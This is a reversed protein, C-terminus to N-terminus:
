TVKKGGSYPQSYGKNLMVMNIDVGQHYIIGLVRGYKDFKGCRLIVIKDLILVALDQKAKQAMVNKGTLEPTDYGVMRIRLQVIEGHYIINVTCTDGDYVKVVKAQYVHENFDFRRASKLTSAKLDLSNVCGM